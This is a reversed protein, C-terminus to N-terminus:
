KFRLCDYAKGNKNDEEQQNLSFTSEAGQMYFRFKDDGACGLMYNSLPGSLQIEGLGVDISRANIKYKDNTCKNDILSYNRGGGFFAIGGHVYAEEVNNEYRRQLVKYISDYKTMMGLMGFPDPNNQSVLGILSATNISKVNKWDYFRVQGELTLLSGYSTGSCNQWGYATKENLYHGAFHADMGISFIGSKEFVTNKITVYTRIIENKYAEDGLLEANYEDTSKRGVEAFRTPNVYNGLQVGYNLGTVNPPYKKTKNAGIRVTFERSQGLICNEVVLSTVSDDAFYSANGSFVRLVTRGLKLRSYTIKVREGVIEVTTGCYDLTSLDSVGNNLSQLQINDILIDNGKVLFAINDQGFVSYTEGKNASVFVVAGNFPVPVKKAGSATSDYEFIPVNAGDLRLKTLDNANIFYGNGYLNKTFTIGVNITKKTAISNANNNYQLDSTATQTTYAILKDPNNGDFNYWKYSSDLGLALRENNTVYFPKVDGNKNIGNTDAVDDCSGLSNVLAVAFRKDATVKLLEAYTSVNVCNKECKIKTTVAMPIGVLKANKSEATITVDGDGIVTMEGNQSITAISNDSSTWLIDGSEADTAFKPTHATQTYIMKDNLNYGGLYFKDGDGAYQKKLGYAGGSETLNVYTPTKVINLEIKKAVTYNGGQTQSRRITITATVETKGVGNIKLNVTGGVSAEVSAVATNSSVFQPDKAYPVNATKTINIGITNDSLRAFLAVKGDKETIVVSGITWNFSSEDVVDAVFTIAIKNQANFLSIELTAVTAVFNKKTVSATVTSTQTDYNYEIEFISKDYTSSKAIEFAIDSTDGYHKKWADADIWIGFSSENGVFSFAKETDSDGVLNTTFIYKQSLNNSVDITIDKYIDKGNATNKGDMVARLTVTGLSLIDFNGFTDANQRLVNCTATDEWREGNKWQWKVNYQSVSDAIETSNTGATLNLTKASMDVAIVGDAIEHTSSKLTLETPKKCIINLVIKDKFGGDKTAIEVVVTGTKLATVVGNEDISVEGLKDNNHQSFTYIYSKNTASKPFIQPLLTLSHANDAMDVRVLGDDLKTGGDFDLTIGAVSVDILMSYSDAANFVTFILLIPILMMLAITKKKM